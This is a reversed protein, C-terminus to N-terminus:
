RPCIAGSLYLVGTAKMVVRGTSRQATGDDAMCVSRSSYGLARIGNSSCIM